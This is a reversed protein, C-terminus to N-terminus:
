SNADIIQVYLMNTLIVLLHTVGIDDATSVRYCM